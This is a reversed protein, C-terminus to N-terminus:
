KLPLSKSEFYDTGSHTHVQLNDSLEFLDAIEVAAQEVGHLQSARHPESM